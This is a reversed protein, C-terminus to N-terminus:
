NALVVWGFGLEHVFMIQSGYGGIAGGKARVFYDGFKYVEWPM